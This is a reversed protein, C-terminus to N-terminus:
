EGDMIRYLLVKKGEETIEAVLELSAPAAEPDLLYALDPRLAPVTREDIVVYQANHNAAYALVGEADAFPLWEWRAGAYFATQRKRALVGAENGSIGHERMWQGLAKYEVPRPILFPGALDAAIWLACVSGTLIFGARSHAGNTTRAAGPFLRRRLWEDAVVLGRASWIMGAPVLPLLYRTDVVSLPFILLPVLTAALFLNQCRTMRRAGLVALPLWMAFLIAPSTLIMGAQAITNRAYNLATQARHQWLYVPLPPYLGPTDRVREYDAYAKEWAFPDGSALAEGHLQHVIAKTSFISGTRATQYLAYPAALLLVGSLFPALLQLHRILALRKHSALIILAGVGASVLGEWRTLHALGFALGGLGLFLWRRKELGIWLCLWGLWLVLTYLQESAAEFNPGGLALAPITTTLLAARWALGAHDPHGNEFTRALLYVPAVLLSGLLLLNVRAPWELKSIAESASASEDPSHPVFDNTGILRYIVAAFLPYGPDFESHPHVGDATFGHGAALHQALTLYLSEDTGIVFRYTAPLVRVALAIGLLAVIVVLERRKM